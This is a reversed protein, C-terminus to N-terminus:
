KKRMRGDTENCVHFIRGPSLAVDVDLLRKSKQFFVKQVYLLVASFPLSSVFLTM